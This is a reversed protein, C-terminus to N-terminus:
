VCAGVATWAGGTSGVNVSQYRGGSRDKPEFIAVHSPTDPEDSRVWESAPGQAPETEIWARLAAEPSDAVPSGGLGIDACLFPTPEPARWREQTLVAIMVVLLAVVGTVMWRRNPKVDSCEDAADNASVGSETMDSRLERM